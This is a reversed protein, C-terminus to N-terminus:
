GAMISLYVFYDKKIIVCRNNVLYSEQEKIIYDLTKNDIKEKNQTNYIEMVKSKHVVGYLNTLAQIYDM